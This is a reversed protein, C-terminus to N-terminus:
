SLGFQSKEANYNQLATATTKVDSYLVLHASTKLIDINDCDLAATSTVMIHKWGVAGLTATAIGNVHYTPVTFGSSTLSGSSSSVTPIGLDILVADTGDYYLWESVTKTTDLSASATVTAKEGDGFINIVKSNVRPNNITVGAFDFGTSTDSESLLAAAPSGTVTGDNSGTQDLWDADTNGYGSVSWVLTESSNYIEIDYIFGKFFNPSSLGGTVIRGIAYTNLVTNISNTPSTSSFTTTTEVGDVYFNVDNLTASAPIYIEIEHEVGDNLTANKFINSGNIGIGINGSSDMLISCRAGASDTGYDFITYNGSTNVIVKAKLRRQTAGAPFGTDSGTVYDDAGDFYMRKNWDLGATQPITAEGTGGSCGVHLGYYGNGGSDFAPFGDLGTAAVDASDALSWHAVVSDDSADYLRVDSYDAAGFDTGDWGLIVNSPTGTFDATQFTQWVDATLGTLNSATTGGDLTQKATTVTTPRVYGTLYYTGSGEASCDANIGKDNIGDTSIHRGSFLTGANSTGSLDRLTTAGVVGLDVVSNSADYSRQGMRSGRSMGM